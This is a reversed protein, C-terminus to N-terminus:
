PVGASGAKDRDPLRDILEQHTKLIELRLEAFNNRIEAQVVDRVDSKVAGVDAGLQTAQNSLDTKLGNMDVKLGAIQGSLDTRLGNM